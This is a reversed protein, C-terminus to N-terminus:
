SEKNDARRVLSSHQYKFGGRQEPEGRVPESVQPASFYHTAETRNDYAFFSSDDLAALAAELPWTKRLLSFFFWVFRFSSDQALFLRALPSSLLPPVM